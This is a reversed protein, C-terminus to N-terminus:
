ASFSFGDPDPDGQDVRREAAPPPEYPAEPDPMEGEPAACILTVPGKVVRDERIKGEADTKGKFVDGNATALEYTWGELATGEDDKVIAEFWVYSVLPIPTQANCPLGQKGIGM